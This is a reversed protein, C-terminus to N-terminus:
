ELRRAVEEADSRLQVASFSLPLNTVEFACWRTKLALTCFTRWSLEREPCTKIKRPRRPSRILIKHCSLSPKQRKWFSSSRPCKTQGWASLPVTDNVRACSEISHSPISQLRGTRLAGNVMATYHQSVSNSLKNSLNSIVKM